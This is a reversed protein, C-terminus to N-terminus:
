LAQEALRPFRDRTLWGRLSIVTISFVGPPTQTSNVLLTVVAPLVDHPRNEVVRFTLPSILPQLITIGPCCKRNVQESVIAADHPRNEVVPFTLPLDIM